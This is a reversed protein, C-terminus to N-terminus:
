SHHFRDPCLPCLIVFHRVQPKSANYAFIPPEFPSALIAANFLPPQTNGGNAIIQSASLVFTLPQGSLTSSPTSPVYKSTSAEPAPPNAGCRLTRPIVASSNPLRRDASQEARRPSLRVKAINDQVWRLAFQQDVPGAHFCILLPFSSLVPFTLERLGANLGGAAAV